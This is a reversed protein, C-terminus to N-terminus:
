RPDNNVKHVENHGGIKSKIYIGLMPFSTAAVLLLNWEGHCNMLHQM